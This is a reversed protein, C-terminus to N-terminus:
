GCLIPLRLGTVRLPTMKKHKLISNGKGKRRQTKALSDKIKKKEAGAPLALQGEYLHSTHLLFVYTSLMFVALFIKSSSEATM